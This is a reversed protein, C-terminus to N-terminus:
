FKEYLSDKEIHGTASTAKDALRLPPHRRCIKKREELGHDGIVAVFIM